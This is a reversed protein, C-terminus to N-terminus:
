RLPWHKKRILGDVLPTLWRYTLSVVGFAIGFLYTLLGSILAHPWAMWVPFWVAFIAFLSLFSILVWRRPRSEHSLRHYLKGRRLIAITLGVALAGLGILSVLAIRAGFPSLM